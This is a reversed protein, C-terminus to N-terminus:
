VLRDRATKERVTLNAKKRYAKATKTDEAVQCAMQYYFWIASKFVYPRKGDLLDRSFGVEMHFPIREKGTDIFNEQSDLNVILLPLTGILLTNGEKKVAIKEM